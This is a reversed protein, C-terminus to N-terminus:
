LERDSWGAGLGIKCLRLESPLYILHDIQDECNSKSAVAPGVDFMEDM